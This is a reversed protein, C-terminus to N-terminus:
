FSPYLIRTNSFISPINTAHVVCNGFILSFDKEVFSNASRAEDLQLGTSRTRAEKQYGPRTTPDLSKSLKCRQKVGRHRDKRNFGAADVAIALRVVINFGQYLMIDAPNPGPLGVTWIEQQSMRKAPHDNVLRRLPEKCHPLADRAQNKQIGGQRVSQPWKMEQKRVEARSQVAMEFADRAARYSLVYDIISPSQFQTPLTQM